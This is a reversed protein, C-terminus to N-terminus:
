WKHTHRCIFDMLMQNNKFSEGKIELQIACVAYHLKYLKNSCRRKQYRNTVFLTMTSEKINDIKDKNLNIPATEFLRLIYKTMNSVCISQKTNFCCTASLNVIPCFLDKVTEQKSPIPPVSRSTSKPFYRCLGLLWIEEKQM